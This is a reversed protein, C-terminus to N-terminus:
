GAPCRAQCDRLAHELRTRIGPCCVAVYRDLGLQDSGRNRILLSLTSVISDILRSRRRKSPTAAILAAAAWSPRAPDARPATADNGAILGPVLGENGLSFCISAPRSLM